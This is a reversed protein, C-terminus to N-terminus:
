LSYRGCLSTQAIKVVGVAQEDMLYAASLNGPRAVPITRLLSRIQAMCDFHAITVLSQGAISRCAAISIDPCSTPGHRYCILEPLVSPLGYKPGAVGFRVLAPLSQKTKSLSTALPM